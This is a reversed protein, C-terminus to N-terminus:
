HTPKEEIEHAVDALTEHLVELTGRYLKWIAWAAQETACEELDSGFNCILEADLKDERRSIAHAAQRLHDRYVGVRCHLLEHIVCVQWPKAAKVSEQDSFLYSSFDIHAERMHHSVDVEAMNGPSDTPRALATVRWERMDLVDLMADMLARVDDM